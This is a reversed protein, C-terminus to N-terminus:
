EKALTLKFSNNIISERYSSLILNNNFTFKLNFTEINSSQTNFNLSFSINTGNYTPSISNVDVLDVSKLYTNDSFITVDNISLSGKLTFAYGGSGNDIKLSSDLENANINFTYILDGTLSSKGTEDNYFLYTGLKLKTVNTISIGPIGNIFEGTNISIKNLVAQFEPNLVVWSGYAVGLQTFIALFLLSTTLKLKNNLKM